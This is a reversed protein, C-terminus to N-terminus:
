KKKYGSPCKPKVATVKKVTKGKVCTITMKKAAAAKAAAEADQKARLEAAAKAEAEAKAKAEAEAKAKAEAEAKAKAEAEAKAKAEAEAKAKAEAELKVQKEKSEWISKASAYEVSQYEQAKQTREQKTIIPVFGIEYGNPPSVLLNKDFSGLVGATAGPQLSKQQWSKQMDEAINQLRNRESVSLNLRKLTPQDVFKFWRYTVTTGDVLNTQFEQSYQSGNFWWAPASYIFTRSKNDATFSTRRLQTPAEEDTIPVRTNGVKKFYESLGIRSNAKSWSFGYGRNQEVTRSRILDNAQVLSDGNQYLNGASGSINAKFVGNLNPELPIKASSDIYERFRSAIFDVSYGMIDRNIVTNANEDSSFNLKPMKSYTVGNNDTFEAYPISGWEAAMNGIFGPKVDLTIGRQNPNLISGNAWFHPLVYGIIGSYNDTSLFLSWANTGAKTAYQAGVEPFPLSLWSIGLQQPSYDPAFTMGDPPILIRNTIQTFGTQEIQLPTTGAFFPWGPSNVDSQYCNQTVNLAYKPFSTKFAQRGWWGLSGEITQYLYLGYRGNKIDDALSKIYPNSGQGCVKQALSSSLDETYPFIWTSGLGVQFHEIGEDIMPWMSAYWSFGYGFEKPIAKQFAGTVYYNQPKATSQPNSSIGGITYKKVRGTLPSSAPVLEIPSKATLSKTRDGIDPRVVYDDVLDSFGFYAVLSSQLVSQEGRYLQAIESDNKKGNFISLEDLCGSFREWAGLGFQAGIRTNTGQTEVRYNSKTAALRSNLYLAGNGFEDRSVAIHTWEKKTIQVNTEFWNDGARLYLDPTVGIYFAYPQAGQSIFESYSNFNDELFVWFSVTFASNTPVVQSPFELYQSNDLGVCTGSPAGVAVGPPILVAVFLVFAIACARRIGAIGM